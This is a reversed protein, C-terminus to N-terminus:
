LAAAPSRECSSSSGEEDPARTSGRTRRRPRRAFAEADSVSALAGTRSAQTEVRAAPVVHTGDGLARARRERMPNTRICSCRSGAASSRVPSSTRLTTGGLSSRGRGPWRGRRSAEGTTGKRRGAVLVSAVIAGAASATRSKSKPRASRPSPPPPPPRLTPDNMEGLARPDVRVTWTVAEGRAVHPPHAGGRRPRARKVQSIFMGGDDEDTGDRDDRRRRRQPVPSPPPPRCRSRAARTTSVKKGLPGPSGCASCRARAAFAKAPSCTRATGFTFSSSAARSGARRNSTSGCRVTPVFRSRRAPHTARSSGRNAGFHGHQRELPTVDADAAALDFSRLPGGQIRMTIAHDIVAAGSREIDIAFTMRSSM